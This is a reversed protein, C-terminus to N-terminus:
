VFHRGRPVNAITRVNADGWFVIKGNDVLGMSIREGASIALYGSGGARRLANRWGTIQWHSNSGWGVLEGNDLLCLAHSSAACVAVFKRGRDLVETNILRADSVDHEYYLTALKQAVFIRGKAGAINM